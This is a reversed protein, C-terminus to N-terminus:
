FVLRTKDEYKCRYAFELALQLKGIGTSGLIVVITITQERDFFLKTDLEALQKELGIVLENRLFPIISAATHSADLENRLRKSATEKGESYNTPM